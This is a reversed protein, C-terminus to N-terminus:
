NQLCSVAYSIKVHSSNLRTSKRDGSVDDLLVHPRRAETTVALLDRQRRQGLGPEPVEGPEAGELGEVGIPQARQQVRALGRVHSRFLTTYRCCASQLAHNFTDSLYA